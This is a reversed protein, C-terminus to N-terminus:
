HLVYRKVECVGLAGLKKSRTRQDIGMGPSLERAAGGPEEAVPRKGAITLIVGDPRMQHQGELRTARLRASTRQFTSGNGSGPFATHIPLLEAATDSSSRENALGEVLEPHLRACPMDPFDPRSTQHGFIQGAIRM